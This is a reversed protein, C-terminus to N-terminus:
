HFRCVWWICPYWYDLIRSGRWIDLEFEISIHFKNLECGFFVLFSVSMTTADMKVRMEKLHFGRNKNTKVFVTVYWCWNTLFLVFIHYADGKSKHIYTLNHLPPILYVFVIQVFNCKFNIFRLTQSTFLSSQLSNTTM